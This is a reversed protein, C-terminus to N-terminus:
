QLLTNCARWPIWSIRQVPTRRDCGVALGTSHMPAERRAFRQAGSLFALRHRYAVAAVLFAVNTSM